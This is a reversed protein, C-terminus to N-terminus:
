MVRSLTSKFFEETYEESKVSPQVLGAIHDGASPPWVQHGAPQIYKSLGTGPSRPEEIAM